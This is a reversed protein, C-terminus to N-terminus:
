GREPKGAAQRIAWAHASLGAAPDTGLIPYIGSDGVSSPWCRPLRTHPLGLKVPGREESTLSTTATTPDHPAVSGKSCGCGCGTYSMRRGRRSPRPEDSAQPPKVCAAPQNGSDRSTLAEDVKLVEEVVCCEDHINLEELAGSSEKIQGITLHKPRRATPGPKVGITGSAGQAKTGQPETVKVTKKPKPEEQALIGFSNKTQVPARLAGKPM